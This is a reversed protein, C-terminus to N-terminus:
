WRFSHRAPVETVHNKFTVYRIRSGWKQGKRLVVMGRGEPRYAANTYRGPEIAIGSRRGYRMGDGADVHTRDDTYIQFAPETSHM